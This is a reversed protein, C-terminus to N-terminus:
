IPRVREPDLGHGLVGYAAGSRPDVLRVNDLYLRPTRWLVGLARWLSMEHYRDPWLQKILKQVMPYYKASMAPFIHHETHLSFNSHVVNLLKPVRVTLSGALPDDDELLPNLLHNTAIYAMVIFNGILAPVLYFLVFNAWGLWLGLAAWFGAPIMTEVLLLLRRRADVRPLTHSLVIGAHVSLWVSLLAFFLVSRVPVIRHLIRLAPRRHYNELTSYADPDKGEIQTNGHHQLNHWYRWLSPAIASPLLCVGGLLDAIWRRSVVAGHLIEHGLFGLSGFAVGILLSFAAKLAFPGTERTIAWTGAAAIAIYPIIWLARYAVPRFCVPPLLKRLETVYERHTNVM